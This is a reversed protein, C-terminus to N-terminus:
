QFIAKLKILIKKILSPELSAFFVSFKERAVKHDEILIKEEEPKKMNLQVLFDESYGCHTGLDDHGINQVYSVGPYLTLMDRLFASAYWRIAWSDNKGQIQDKLMSTYNAHGCFDFEDSLNKTKLEDLLRQGDSEFIAWRDKWTAWGWCDAGKLFFKEPLGEIPYSYAHISAVRTEDRYMNLSNNMYELFYPSTVMDDELVIVSGYQNVVNTVGDIISNALGFNYDREVVKISKFGSITKIYRRVEVVADQKEPSKASDSYITLDSLSALENKQLAEITKKTHDARAYVFLVIPSLKQSDYATM